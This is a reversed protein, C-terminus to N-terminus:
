GDNEMYFLRTCPCELSMWSQSYVELTKWVFAYDNELKDIAKWLDSGEQSISKAPLNYPDLGM